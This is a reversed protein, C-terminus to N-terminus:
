DRYMYKVGEMFDIDGNDNLLKQMNEVEKKSVTIEKRHTNTRKMLTDKWGTQRLLERKHGDHYGLTVVDFHEQLLDLARKVKMEKSVGYPNRAMLNYLFYDLQTQWPGLASINQFHEFWDARNSDFRQLHKALSITHSLPDRFM